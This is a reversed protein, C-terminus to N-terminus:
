RGSDWYETWHYESVNYAYLYICCLTFLWVIFLAVINVQNGVNMDHNTQFHHLCFFFKHANIKIPLDIIFNSSFLNLAYYANKRWKVQILRKIM